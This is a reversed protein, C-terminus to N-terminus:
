VYDSLNVASLQIDSMRLCELSYEHDIWEFMQNVDYNNWGNRMIREM